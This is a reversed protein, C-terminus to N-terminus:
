VAPIPRQSTPLVRLGIRLTGPAAEPPGEEKKKQGAAGGSCAITLTSRLWRWTRRWSTTPQVALLESVPDVHAVTLAPIDDFM